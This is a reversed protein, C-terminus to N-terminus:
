QVPGRLRLRFNSDMVTAKMMSLLGGGSTQLQSLSRNLECNDQASPKRGKTYTSWQQVLCSPGRTSRSITDTMALLGTVRPDQQSDVNPDASADVPHQALLNGNSDYVKEVSQYRGLSDYNELVFGAPNIKSHCGVCSASNTRSEIQNRLSQTPDPTPPKFLEATEATMQPHGIVDCLINRRLILGRHVLSSQNTAGMMFGVRSMVGPRQGLPFKSRDEGPGLQEDFRIFDVYLNRDMGNVEANNTFAISVVANERNATFTFIHDAYDTPSTVTGTGIVQSGFLLRFNAGVGGALDARMRANVRFTRGARLNATKTLTGDSWLNWGDGTGGGTSPTMAEAEIQVSLGSGGPGAVGYVQALANGKVFNRDSTMLDFYTGPVDYTYYSTFDQIEQAAESRLENPAVGNLFWDSHNSVPLRNVGLWQTYFERVQNRGSASTFLGQAIEAYQTANALQGAEAKEILALDPGRGTATFALRSALEYPTLSLLDERGNVASGALEIKYLFHPSQLMTSVVAHIGAAKGGSAETNYIARYATLEEANLARRFAVKGFRRMFNSWCADNMGTGSCAHNNVWTSSTSFIQGVKDAVRFFATAHAASVSSDQVDFIETVADSPLADIEFSANDLTVFGGTLLNLTALYERRSLRRLDSPRPDTNADCLYPNAIGDGPKHGLALAILKIDAGTLSQTLFMMQPVTATASQIQTLTRDRKGSTDVEGHCSACHNAYLAKGQAVQEILNANSPMSASFSGPETFRGCNQFSLSVSILAFVSVLKYIM